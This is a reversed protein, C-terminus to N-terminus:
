SLLRIAESRFDIDVLELRRRVDSTVGLADDQALITQIPFEYGLAAM